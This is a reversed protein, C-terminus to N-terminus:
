AGGAGATSGGTGGAAGGSGGSGGTSGGAGGAGGENDSPKNLFRCGKLRQPHRLIDCAHDEDFESSNLEPPSGCASINEAGACKATAAIAEVCADVNGDDPVNAVDQLGHLCQDNYFEICRSVDDETEIDPSEARDACAPAAECRATEIRRCADKGVADTGCGMSWLGATSVALFAFAVLPRIRTGLSAM